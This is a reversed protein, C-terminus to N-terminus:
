DFNLTTLVCNQQFLRGALSTLPLVTNVPLDLPPNSGKGFIDSGRNINMFLNLTLKLGRGGQRRERICVGASYCHIYCLTDAFYNMRDQDASTLIWFVSGRPFNSLYLGTLPVKMRLSRWEARM